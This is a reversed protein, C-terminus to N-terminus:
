RIPGKAIALATATILTIAEYAESVGCWTRSVMIPSNIVRFRRGKGDGPSDNDLDMRSTDFGQEDLVEVLRAYARDLDARSTRNSSTM